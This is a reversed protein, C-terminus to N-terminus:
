RTKSNYIVINESQELPLVLGQNQSQIVDPSVKLEKAIQWLDDGKKGFYIEIAHSKPPLPEKLELETIVADCIEKKTCIQVKLKGDFFVERGRRAVVDVDVMESKVFIVTNLPSDASIGVRFPMEEKISALDELEDNLYTINFVAIGEIYVKGSSYEVATITHMPSSFGIVKDIRPANSDIQVSGEVKAEFFEQTQAISKELSTTTIGLNADMGFADVAYPLTIDQYARYAIKIPVTILIKNVEKDLEYKYSSKDVSAIARVVGNADLGIVEIERKFPESFSVCSITQLEENTNIYKITTYIEGSVSFLNEEPIISKLCVKSEVRLINDMKDNIPYSIEENFVFNDAKLLEQSSIEETKVCVRDDGGCLIEAQNVLVFDGNVAVLCEIKGSKEAFEVGRTNAVLNVSASTNLQNNVIKGMFPSVNEYPKIKKEADLYAGFIHVQGTFALEAEAPSVSDISADAEVWLLKELDPVNLLAEVMVQEEELKGKCLYNLKTKEISM